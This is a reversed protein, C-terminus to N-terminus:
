PQKSWFASAGEPVAVESADKVINLYFNAMGRVKPDDSQLAKDACAQCPGDFGQSKCYSTFRGKKLPIKQIWKEKKKGAIHGATDRVVSSVKSLM